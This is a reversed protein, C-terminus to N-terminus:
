LGSEIASCALAHGLQRPVGVAMIESVESEEGPIQELIASFTPRAEPGTSQKASLSGNHRFWDPTRKRGHNSMHNSKYSRTHNGTSRHEPTDWASIVGGAKRVADREPGQTVCLRRNGDEPSALVLVPPDPSLFRRVASPVTGNCTRVNRRSRRHRQGPRTTIRLPGSSRRSGLTSGSGRSNRLPTPRARISPRSVRPSLREVTSRPWRSRTM